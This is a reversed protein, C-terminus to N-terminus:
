VFAAERFSGDDTARPSWTALRGHQARLHPAPLAHRCDSRQRVTAISGTSHQKAKVSALHASWLDHDKEPMEQTVKLSPDNEDPVAQLSVTRLRHLFEDLPLRPELDDPKGGIRRLEIGDLPKPAPDLSGVQCVDAFFSELGNDLM